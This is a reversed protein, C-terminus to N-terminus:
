EKSKLERFHEYFKSYMGLPEVNYEKCLEIYDDYDDHFKSVSSGM